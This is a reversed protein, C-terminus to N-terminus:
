YMSKLLKCVLKNGENSIALGEPIEMYVDEALKGCLFATKVDFQILELDKQAVIALLVRLSDYRVVPSFTEFFNRGEKQKCGRACQRAKYRKIQGSTARQVKDLSIDM